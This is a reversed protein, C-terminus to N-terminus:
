KITKYTYYDEPFIFAYVLVANKCVCMNQFLLYDSKQDLPFNKM